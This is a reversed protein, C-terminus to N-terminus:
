SRVESEATRMSAVGPHLVPQERRPSVPIPESPLDPAPRAERWRRLLALLGGLVGVIIGGWTFKIAPEVSVDVFARAKLDDPNVQSLDIGGLQVSAFQNAPDVSVLALTAGGPLAVPDGQPAQNAEVRLTPTVTTTAGSPATV